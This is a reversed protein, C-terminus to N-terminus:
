GGQISVLFEVRDGDRLGTTMSAQADNVIVMVAEADVESFGEGTFIALPTLGERWEVTTEPQKSHTRKVLTPFWKVRISM